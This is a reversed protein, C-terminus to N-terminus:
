ERAVESKAWKAQWLERMKDLDFLSNNSINISKLNANFHELIKLAGESTLRNNVLNLKEAKSYAIAV